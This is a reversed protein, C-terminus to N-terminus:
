AGGRTLLRGRRSTAPRGGPRAALHQPRRRGAHPRRVAHRPQPPAAAGPRRRLDRRPRLRLLRRRLRARDPGQPQLGALRPRASPWGASWTPWRHLRAPAAETWVAPLGLQLSAIGGWATASTATDLRKLEPPARRTTPSSATSPATAGAGQWLLERNAAERIPPCCKFQTAGDPIEEAAFTLYHPCTEVTVRVGDRRASALMPLADAPPCTCSTSGRAPGAPPRSSTPSRGPERGDARGPPSSTAPLARGRPARRATSPTRRGRRARDDAGDFRPWRRAAGRRARGAAAAPVRRRRLAAPLVQLRVRRRRAAGRLEGLNGPVAGGWFGVDVYCQGEARRASSRWRPWTSPRRSATSRCTSSPPSAAPPRPGPPPRSARGSPAAPSTSTCTPTSWARAAPGRRRRARCRAARRPRGGAARGRRGTRRHRRRLREDRGGGHGPPPGPPGHRVREIM